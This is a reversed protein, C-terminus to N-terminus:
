TLDFSAAVGRRDPRNVSDLVPVRRTWTEGSSRAVDDLNNGFLTIQDTMRDELGHRGPVCLDIAGADRVLSGIIASPRLMIKAHGAHGSM